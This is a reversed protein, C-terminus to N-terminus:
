IHSVQDLCFKLGMAGIVKLINSKALRRKTGFLISDTKGLHMSLKNDVLWQNVCKLEIGLNNEIDKVNCGPVLLASDVLLKCQVAASMDNIYTLFLLPGLISGQSVGCTVSQPDSLTGEVDCIQTRDTLYSTFWKLASHSFGM